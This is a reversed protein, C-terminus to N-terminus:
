VLRTRLYARVAQRIHHSVSTDDKEALNRLAEQPNRHVHGSM